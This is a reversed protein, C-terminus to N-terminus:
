SALGKLLFYISWRCTLKWYTDRDVMDTRLGNEQCFLPINGLSSEHSPWSKSVSEWRELYSRNQSTGWTCKGVFSACSCLEFALWQMKVHQEWGTNMFLPTTCWCMKVDRSMTILKWCSVTSYSLIFHCCSFQSNQLLLRRFYFPKNTKKLLQSAQSLMSVQHGEEERASWLVRLGEDRWGRATNADWCDTSSPSPSTPNITVTPTQLCAIHLISCCTTWEQLLGTPLM